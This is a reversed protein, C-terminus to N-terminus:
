YNSVELSLEQSSSTKMAIKSPFEEGDMVSDTATIEQLMEMWPAGATAGRIITSLTAM